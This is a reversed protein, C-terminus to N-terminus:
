HLPCVLLAVTEWTQKKVDVHSELGTYGRSYVGPYQGPKAFETEGARHEVRSLAVWGSLYIVLLLSISVVAFFQVPLGLVKM